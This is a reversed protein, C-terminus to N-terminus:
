YILLIVGIVRRVKCSPPTKSQITATITDVTTNGANAGGVKKIAHQTMSATASHILRESNPTSWYSRLVRLYVSRLEAEATTKRIATKPMTPNQYKLWFLEPNAPGAGDRGLMGVTPPPSVLTAFFATERILSTIRVPVSLM